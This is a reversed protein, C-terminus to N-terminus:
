PVYALQQRNSYTFLDAITPVLQYMEDYLRGPGVGWREFRKM